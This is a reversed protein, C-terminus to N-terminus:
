VFMKELCAKKINKLKELERQQLTILNDLNLFYEVIKDQEERNPIMISFFGYEQANVGPQGSRQSTIRIFKDYKSTLTNQYVFASNIEAKIRARILFGAYYVLGDIEKYIYSKGVSAGTRAFLVDGIKLKYKEALSLDTNPSTLDNNNFNHSKDDIDTIRIYKNIGDYEMAAANLGYEFQECMEGLKREEWDETFGKFRIEPVVAGNKPFMKELMAKKVTVLKDYKRQYLTILRDLIRLYVAIKDQEVRNPIYIYKDHVDNRNLTPVGSGTGLRNLDLKKYMYYIFLPDNEKFDTVWLATNHPWYDSEVYHINGITGSRGTVVGPAKAKFDSHYGNIGNSMVVPYDGVKMESKPLDFGRQLPAVDVVKREEWEDVFGKFRIEPINKKEAM